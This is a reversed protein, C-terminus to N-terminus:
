GQFSCGIKFNAGSDDTDRIARVIVVMPTQFNNNDFGLINLKQDVQFKEKDNTIFGLGGQSLDFLPFLEGNLSAKFEVRVKKDKPPRARPTSRKDAFLRDEEDLGIFSLETEFLESDHKSMSDIRWVTSIHETANKSNLRMHTENNINARGKGHIFTSEKPINSLGYGKVFVNLDNFDIGSMWAPADEDIIKNIEKPLSYLSRKGTTSIFSTKFILSEDKAFFFVDGTKINETSGSLIDLTFENSEFDVKNITCLKIIRESDQLQWVVLKDGANLLKNLTSKYLDPNEQISIKKM